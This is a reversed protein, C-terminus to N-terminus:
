PMVAATVYWRRCGSKLIRNTSAAGSIPPGQAGDRIKGPRLVLLRQPVYSFGSKMISSFFNPTSIPLCTGAALTASYRLAIASSFSMALEKRNFVLTSTTSCTLSPHTKCQVDVFSEVGEDNLILVAFSMREVPSTFWGEIGLNGVEELKSGVTM